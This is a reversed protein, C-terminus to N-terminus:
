RVAAPAHGSDTRIWITWLRVTGRAASPAPKGDPRNPSALLRALPM